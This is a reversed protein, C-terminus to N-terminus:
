GTWSTGPATATCRRRGEVSREIAATRAAGPAAPAPGAREQGADVQNEAREKGDKGYAVYTKNLEEGLKIIQDDFETKM